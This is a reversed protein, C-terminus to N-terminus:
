NFKFKVSDRSIFLRTLYPSAAKRLAICFKKYNNINDICYHTTETHLKIDACNVKRDVIGQSFSFHRIENIPIKEFTEKSQNYFSLSQNTLRVRNPIKKNKFLNSFLVSLVFSISYSILLITHLQLQKYAGFASVFPGVFVCLLVSFVLLGIIEDYKESIENRETEFLVVENVNIDDINETM